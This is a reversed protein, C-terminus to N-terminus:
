AGGLERRLSVGRSYILCYGALIIWSSNWTKRGRFSRHLELDVANGEDANGTNVKSLPQSGMTDLGTFALLEWFHTLTLRHCARYLCYLHCAPAESCYEYVHHGVTAERCIIHPTVTCYKERNLSHTSRCHDKQQHHSFPSLQGEIVNRITVYSAGSCHM